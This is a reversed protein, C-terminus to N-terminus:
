LNGPARRCQERCEGRRGSVSLRAAGFIIERLDSGTAGAQREEQPEPVAHEKFGLLTICWLFLQVQALTRNHVHFYRWRLIEKRFDELRSQGHVELM